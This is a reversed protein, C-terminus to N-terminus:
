IADTVELARKSKGARRADLAVQLAAKQANDMQSYHPLLISTNIALKEEFLLTHDRSYVELKQNNREQVYDEFRECRAAKQLAAVGLDNEVLGFHLTAEIWPFFANGPDLKEGDRTVTLAQRLIPADVYRVTSRKAAGEYDMNVPYRALFILREARLWNERPFRKILADYNDLCRQMVQKEGLAAGDEAYRSEVTLALVKPDNPFRRELARADARVGPLYGDLIRNVVFLEHLPPVVLVVLWIAVFIKVGIPFKFRPM